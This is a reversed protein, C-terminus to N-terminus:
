AADTPPAVNTNPPVAAKEVSLSIREGHDGKREKEKLKLDSAPNKGSGSTKGQRKVSNKKEREERKKSENKRAKM